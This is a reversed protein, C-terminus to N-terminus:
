YSAAPSSMTPAERELKRYAHVLALMSVPITVLLGVVLALLGLINLGIITVVLLLLEWRHGKTIRISEKIAEIPGRHKDIIIYSTFLLTLAIIIGPVILLILGVIVAIGVLIQGALYYLFPQPNWLDKLTVSEASDHARISFTVLGIEVFLGIIASAIGMAVTSVTVPAGEAPELLSSAIGSIVIALVFAGIIMVPRKKFIEWGARICEGVLLKNM